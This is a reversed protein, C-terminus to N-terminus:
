YPSYQGGKMGVHGDTPPPGYGGKVGRNPESSKMAELATQMEERTGGSLTAWHAGLKSKQKEEWAKKCEADSGFEVFIDDGADRIRTVSYAYFHRFVDRSKPDAPLGSVKLINTTPPASSNKGGKGGGKAPDDAYPKCYGLTNPAAALAQRASEVDRFTLFCYGRFTGDPDCKWGIEKVPGFKSYFENVEQQKTFRPLNGIFIKETIPADGFRKSEVPKIDLLVGAEWELPDFHNESYHGLVTKADAANEFNVHGQGRSLGMEDYELTV